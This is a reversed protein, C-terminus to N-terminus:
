ARHSQLRGAGQPPAEGAALRANQKDGPYHGYLAKFEHVRFETYPWQFPPVFPACRKKHSKRWDAKQCDRSCYWISKCKACSLKGPNRCGFNGCQGRPHKEPDPNNLLAEELNFQAQSKLVGTYPAGGKAGQYCKTPFQHM